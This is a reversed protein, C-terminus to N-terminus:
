KASVKRWIVAHKTGSRVKYINESILDMMSLLHHGFDATKFDTRSVSGGVRTGGEVPRESAQSGPQVAKIYKDMFWMLSFQYMYNIQNLSALVMYLNAGYSAIPLYKKRVEGIEKEKDKATQVRQSIKNFTDNTKRLNDILSQDDLM